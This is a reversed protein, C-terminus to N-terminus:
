KLLVFHQRNPESPIADPEGIQNPVVQPVCRLEQEVNHSMRACSKLHLNATILDDLCDRVLDVWALEWIWRLWLALFLRLFFRLRWFGFFSISIFTFVWLIFFYCSLTFPLFNSFYM